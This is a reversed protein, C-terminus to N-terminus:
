HRPAWLALNEQLLQMNLAVDRCADEPVSGFHEAASVLAAQATEVAAATDGLVEHQFVSLNLALGLRVPHTTQLHSAAEATAELYASRASEAVKERLDAALFETMYRYYDGTMKLYFIKPEGPAAAPVLSTRLLSLVDECVSQMEAAVKSRYGAALAANNPRGETAEQAEVSIAVRHALRRSSLSGKYAASLLDREEATLPGGSQVREKMYVAMEDYREAREAISALIVNKDQPDM